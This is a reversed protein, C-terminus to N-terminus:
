GFYEIEIRIDYDDGSIMTGGTKQRVVAPVGNRVEEVGAIRAGVSHGREALKIGLETAFVGSGGHTPYCTIGIKMSGASEYAAEFIWVVSM